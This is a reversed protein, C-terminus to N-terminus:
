SELDRVDLGRLSPLWSRWAGHSDGQRPTHRFFAVSWPTHDVQEPESGHLRRHRGHIPPAFWRGGAMALWDGRPSLLEDFVSLVDDIIATGGARRTNHSCKRIPM